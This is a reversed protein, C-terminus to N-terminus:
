GSAPPVREGGSIVAGRQPARPLAGPLAGVVAAEIAGGEDGPPRPRRAAGPEMCMSAEIWDEFQTCWYQPKSNRAGMLPVNHVVQLVLQIVALM